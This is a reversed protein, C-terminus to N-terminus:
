ERRRGATNWEPEPPRGHARWYRVCEECFWGAPEGSDVRVATMQQGRSFGRGCGSCTEAPDGLSTMRAEIEAMRKTRREGAAADGGNGCDKQVRGRHLRRRPVERFGRPLGSPRRPGEPRVRGSGPGRAMRVPNRLLSPPAAPPVPDGEEGVPQLREMHDPDTIFRTENAYEGQEPPSVLECPGGERAAAVAGDGVHLTALTEGTHVAMVLTTNYYRLPNGEALARGALEAHASAAARALLEPLLNPTQGPERLGQSLSRVAARLATEAGAGAEPSTGAGDTAAAILTGDGSEPCAIFARDQCPTGTAAHSPGTRAAHAGKWIRGQPRDATNM